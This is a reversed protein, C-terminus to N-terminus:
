DDVTFLDPLPLAVRLDSTRLVGDLVELHGERVIRWARRSDPDIVWVNPVGMALYDDLREQLKRSTDDPSLAEICIYPPETFVQEEPEPLEVV